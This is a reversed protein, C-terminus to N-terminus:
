RHHGGGGHGGGGHAAAIRGTGLFALSITLLVGFIKSKM